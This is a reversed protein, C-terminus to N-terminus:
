ARSSRLAKLVKSARKMLQKYEKSEVAYMAVKGKPDFHFGWGYRRALPSSRLCPQDKAFFAARLVEGDAALKAAPIEKHRAHTQWLVDEQTYRYPHKALLEYQILAVTKKGGRETPVAGQDAPSDDAVAIFTDVYNM